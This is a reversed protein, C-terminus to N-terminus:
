PGKINLIGRTMLNLQRFMKTPCEISDSRSSFSINERNSFYPHQNPYLFGAPDATRRAVWGTLFAGM